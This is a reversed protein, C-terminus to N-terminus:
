SEESEIGEKRNIIELVEYHTYLTNNEIFDLLECIMDYLVPNSDQAIHEMDKIKQKLEEM